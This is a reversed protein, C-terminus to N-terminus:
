QAWRVDVWGSGQMPYGEPDLETWERFHQVIRERGLWRWEGDLCRPFLLFKSVTRNDGQKPEPAKKWRISM